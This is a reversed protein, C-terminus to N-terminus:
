RDGHNEVSVAVEVRGMVVVQDHAELTSPALWHARLDATSLVKTVRRMGPGTASTSHGHSYVSRSRLQKVSEASRQVDICRPQRFKPTVPDPDTMEFLLTLLGFAQLM